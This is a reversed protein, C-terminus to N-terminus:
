THTTNKYQLVVLCCSLFIFNKEEDCPLFQSEWESIIPIYFSLGKPSPKCNIVGGHSRAMESRLIQGISFFAYTWVFVHACINLAAKNTIAFLYVVGGSIWWYIFPYVCKIYVYLPFSGLLSFSHVISAHFLLHIKFYDHQTFAFVFSYM